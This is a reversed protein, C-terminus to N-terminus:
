RSGRPFVSRRATAPLSGIITSMLDARRALDEDARRQVAQAGIITDQVRNTDLSEGKKLRSQAQKTIADAIASPETQGTRNYVQDQKLSSLSEKAPMKAPQGVYPKAADPNDLARMAAKIDQNIAKGKENTGVRIKSGGKQQMVTTGTFSGTRLKDIAEASDFVVGQKGGPGRVSRGLYTGTPNQNVSSRNAADLQFMANALRQEDGSTMGMEQMLGSVVQNGAPVSKGTEPNRVFMTRPNQGQRYYADVATAVKQLEDITRINRDKQINALGPMGIRKGLERLKNAAQTTELTIDVQPFDGFTRGGERYDPMTQTVWERATQPANLANASSSSNPRRDGALPAPLEPGQIAVPNGTRPDIYVGDKRRAIQGEIADNATRIVHATEGIKGLSKIEAIRGIAEDAMAGPGNVTFGTRAITDAINAVFEDNEARVSPSYNKNDQRVLARGVRADMKRENGLYEQLADMATSTESDVGSGGFVRAISGGMGSKQRQASRQLDGLADTLVSKPAMKVEEGRTEDFTERRILGTEPDETFGRDNARYTQEDDARTSGFESNYAVDEGFAYAVDDVGKYGVGQLEPSGVSDRTTAESQAMQRLIDQKSVNQDLRKQRRFQRSVAALTEEENLGLARGAAALEAGKILVENADHKNQTPNLSASVNSIRSTSANNIAQIRELSM